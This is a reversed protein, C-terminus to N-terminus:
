GDAPKNEAQGMPIIEGWISGSDELHLLGMSPPGEIEDPCCASGPNFVLRGDRWENIPRHIHGFVVIRAAPFAVLARQIFREEQM